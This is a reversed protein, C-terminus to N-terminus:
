QHRRSQLQVVVALSLACPRCDAVRSGDADACVCPCSAAAFKNM